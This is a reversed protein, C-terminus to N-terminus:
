IGFFKYIRKLIINKNEFREVKGDCIVLKKRKSFNITQSNAIRSGILVIDGKLISYPDKQYIIIEVNEPNYYTKITRLSILTSNTIEYILKNDKSPYKGDEVKGSDITVKQGLSGDSMYGLGDKIELIKGNSLERFALHLKQQRVNNLYNNVDLDPIVDENALVFFKNETGDLRLILVGNDIYAESCLIKDSNGRDILISRAEPFYDWKGIVAQGNKSLILGKDKKFILRQIENDEDVITWVKNILLNSQELSASHNKLQNVISIFQAKIM